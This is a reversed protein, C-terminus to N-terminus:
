LIRNSGLYNNIGKIVEGITEPCNDLKKMFLEWNSSLEISFDEILQIETDRAITKLKARISEVSM